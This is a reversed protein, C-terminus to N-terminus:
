LDRTSTVCLTPPLGSLDGFLPSMAPDKADHSGIYPAVIQPLTRRDDAPPFYFESDGARSLDASGSFFGLAAPLPLGIKRMRMAAEATLVAGASTGYLGVHKPSHTKLIERYVSVADDVAAPFPYEPALRYLVAIVTSHTLAAIAINETLSGSDFLFGGGHLDILIRDAQGPASELPEITKVPVGAIVADGLVVRYRRMLLKGFTAQYSSFFQRRQALTASTPLPM